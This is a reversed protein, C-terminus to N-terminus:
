NVLVLTLLNRDLKQREKLNLKQLNIQNLKYIHENFMLVISKILDSAIDSNVRYGLQGSCFTPCYFNLFNTNFILSYILSLINYPFSFQILQYFTLEYTKKM